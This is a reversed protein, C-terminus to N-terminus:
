KLAAEFVRLLGFDFAGLIFAVALSFIIVTLSYKFTESKTPWVVKALESKVEGLFEFIKM